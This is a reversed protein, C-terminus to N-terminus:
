PITQRSYTVFDYSLGISTVFTERTIELWESWDVNPFFADGPVSMNVNTLELRTAFNITQRFIEEGGIVFADKTGNLTGISLADAVSNVVTAGPALYDHCRTIVINKRGPLPRGLSEWTKRGMLIAHNMTLMKFRKLDEPLSWPLKNGVGIVRNSAIAAILIVQNM